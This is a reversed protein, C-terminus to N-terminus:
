LSLELLHIKGRDWGYDSLDIEPAPLNLLRQDTIERKSAQMAVMAKTMGASARRTYDIVEKNNAGYREALRAADELYNDVLTLTLCIVRKEEAQDQSDDGHLYDHLSKELTSLHLFHQTGIEERTTIGVSLLAKKFEVYEGHRCILNYAREADERTSDIPFAFGHDWYKAVTGKYTELAHSFAAGVGSYNYVIKDLQDSNNTKAPTSRLQSINSRIIGRDVSELYKLSSIAQNLNGERISKEINTLKEQYLRAATLSKSIGKQREHDPLVCTTMVTDLDRVINRINPDDMIGESENLYSKAFRELRTVDSILNIRLEMNDVLWQAREFASAFVGGIKQTIDQKIQNFTTKEGSIIAALRQKYHERVREKSGSFDPDEKIGAYAMLPKDPTAITIADITHGLQETKKNRADHQAKFNEYQEILGRVTASPDDSHSDKAIIDRDPIGGDPSSSAQVRLYDEIWAATKLSNGLSNVYSAVTSGHRVSGEIGDIGTKIDDPALSLSSVLFDHLGSFAALRVFKAEIDEYIFQSGFGMALAKIAGRMKQELSVVSKMRGQYYEIYHEASESLLRNLGDVETEPLYNRLNQVEAQDDSVIKNASSINGYGEALLRNEEVQAQRGAHQLNLSYAIRSESSEFDMPKIGFARGVNPNLFCSVDLNIALGGALGAM